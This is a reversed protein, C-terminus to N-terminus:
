PTYTVSLDYGGSSYGRVMVHAQTTGAPVDLSCTEDAGSTYPRCTFESVSPAENFRVYLDPDGPNGNGKMTVEFPTGPTVPFPGSSLGDPGYTNQNGKTVQQQTFEVTKSCDCPPPPPPPSGCITTNIQFGEAPGYLCAAGNQDKETLSLTRDGGGNCHPYHMTSFTDYSTLPRWNNDEFCTGSDPRTHEHRFGLTHGLEHRLIGVLKLNDSPNLVFASDDILVNRVGRPEGPFFARALYQGNSVPRVDFLVNTNSPTCDADYDALHMFNVAAVAEWANAAALMDAVAKNKRPGFSDSVCYTLQQKEGNSWKADEGGVQHLILRNIQSGVFGTTQSPPEPPDQKIRNVFFEKLLKKNHIPIDGSVIYKGGTFPEKKVSAEFEEFTKNKWKDRQEKAIKKLNAAGEEPSVKNLGAGSSLKPTPPSTPDGNLRPGNPPCGTLAVSMFLIGIIALPNRLRKYM